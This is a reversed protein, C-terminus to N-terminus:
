TCRRVSWHRVWRHPPASRRFPSVPRVSPASSCSNAVIAAVAGSAEANQAKLAFSCAGRQMMAIDGAPFGEFDEIECGSSSSAPDDFSLDVGTVMATVDGSGSFRMTDFDVGDTYVVAEPATQEFVSPALEEFFNYDFSQITPSYGVAELTAVVYDVSAQYGPSSAERTGGNDDAHQQFAAQHARVGELTVCETLSEVTDNVRAACEEPTAASLTPTQVLAVGAVTLVAVALAIPKRM